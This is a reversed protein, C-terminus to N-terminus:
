GDTDDEGASIQGTTIREQTEQYAHDLYEGLDDESVRWIGRGGIQVGRLEGSRLLAYVTPMGVNLVDKVEALSLMRAFRGRAATAEQQVKDNARETM